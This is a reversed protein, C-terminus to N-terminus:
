RTKLNIFLFSMDLLLTEFDLRYTLNKEIKQRRRIEKKLLFNWTAVVALIFLAGGIVQGIQKWFRAPDIGPDYEVDIWNKKIKNEKHLSISALGKNIIPVLEPWDQRVAFHLKQLEHSASAAVKLNTLHLRRIWYTASAINGM